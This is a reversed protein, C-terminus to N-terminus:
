RVVSLISDIIAHSAVRALMPVIFIIIGVLLLKSCPSLEGSRRWGPRGPLAFVTSATVGLCSGVSAHMSLYM